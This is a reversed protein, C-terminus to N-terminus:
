NNDLLRKALELTFQKYLTHSEKYQKQQILKICPTILDNYIAKLIHDKTPLSQIKSIIKPSIQYYDEVDNKGNEFTLLYHDRFDRLTELEFCNDPLGKWEVAATTLFCAGDDRIEFDNINEGFIGFCRKDIYKKPLERM